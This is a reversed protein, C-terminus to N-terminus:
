FPMTTLCKDQVNSPHPVHSFLRMRKDWTFHLTDSSEPRLTTATLQDLLNLLVKKQLKTLCLLQPTVAHCRVM